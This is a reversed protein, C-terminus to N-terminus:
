VRIYSNVSPADEPKGQSPGGLKMLGLWAFWKVGEIGVFARSIYIYIYISRYIYIYISIRFIYIYIYMNYKCVCVCM